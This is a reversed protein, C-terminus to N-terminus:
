PTTKVKVTESQGNGGPFGKLLAQLLVPAASLADPGPAIASARGEWLVSNDRVRRIQMTLQAATVMRTGGGIPFSVGGGVGGNWGGTSGGVGISIPSRKRVVESTGTLSIRAVHDAPQGAAMLKFGARALEANAAAALAGFQLSSVAAPDAPEVMISSGALSPAPPALIHFRALEVKVTAAHAKVPVLLAAMLAPFIM